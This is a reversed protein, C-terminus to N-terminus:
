DPGIVHIITENKILLLGRKTGTYGGFGNKANVQFVVAWGSLANKGKGVTQQTPGSADFDKMSDPDKLTAKLYERAYTRAAYEPRPGYKPDPPEPPPLPAAPAPSPPPQHKEQSSMVTMGVVVLALFLWLKWRSEKDTM